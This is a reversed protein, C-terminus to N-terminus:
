YDEPHEAHCYETVGSTYGDIYARKLEGDEFPNKEEGTNLGDKFGLNYAFITKTKLTDM